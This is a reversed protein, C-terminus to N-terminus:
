RARTRSCRRIMPFKLHTKVCVSANKGPPSGNGRRPRASTGGGTEVIGIEIGTEADNGSSAGALPDPRRTSSAASRRRTPYSMPGSGTYKWLGEASGRGSSTPVAHNGSCPRPRTCRRNTGGLPGFAFPAGAPPAAGPAKFSSIGGAPISESYRLDVRFWVLVPSFSVLSQQPFTM